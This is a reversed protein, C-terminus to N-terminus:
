GPASHPGPILYNELMAFYHRFFSRTQEENIPMSKMMGIQLMVTNVPAMFLRRGDMPDIPRCEGAAIARAFLQEYIPYITTLIRTAFAHAVTPVSPGEQILLRYMASRQKDTVMSWCEEPMRRIYERLTVEGRATAMTLSMNLDNVARDVVAELLALKSPFAEYVTPKSVGLAEGVDTMSTEEFGRSIFLDRAAEIARARFEEKSAVTARTGQARSVRVPRTGIEFYYPSDL